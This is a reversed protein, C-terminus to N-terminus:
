RNEEDRSPRSLVAALAAAMPAPRDSALSEVQTAVLAALVDAENVVYAGVRLGAARAAATISRDALLTPTAAVLFHADVALSDRVLHRRQHRRFVLGTRVAPAQARIRRVALPSMSIMILDDLMGAARAIELCRSEIGDAEPGVADEKIEVMVEAKGRALELVEGLAPVRERLYRDGFKAAYGADLRRLASWRWESVAGRGDTTRQLTADHHVVVHRDRSLHVDCELVECGQRVALDFASLTNEPAEQSAGRHAVVFPTGGGPALGRSVM